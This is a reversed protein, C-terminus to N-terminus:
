NYLNKDWDAYISRYLNSVKEAQLKDLNPEMMSLVGIRKFENAFRENDPLLTTYYEEKEPEKLNCDKPNIYKWAHDRTAGNRNHIVIPKMEQKDILIEFTKTPICLAKDIPFIYIGNGTFVKIFAQEYAELSFVINYKVSLSKEDKKPNFKEVQNGPINFNDVQNIELTVFYESDNKIKGIIYGQCNINTLVLSYIFISFITKIIYNM